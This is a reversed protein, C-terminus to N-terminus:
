DPLPFGGQESSLYAAEVVRMTDLADEVRTPLVDSEGTVYQQLSNMSGIFADPFWNGHTPLTRWANVTEGGGEIYSLTDPKGKPYDLNVGMVARMAGRTGEWQVYSRQMELSFDHSHNTSINVRMWEGYDMTLITKTAALSPTRPSRVTKAYVSVPNGLWSRVLDIYHISHYLIELRPATSLFSWLQWPMHVSVQVEIDHLQGLLGADTIRRATLMNPAWRLQFNVAAILGKRHCLDVIAHAEDLTQGMPKQILVAAGDPLLPLVKLLAPAPVAVDFIKDGPTREVAEKISTTAHPINFDKALASAKASDADVASAVPLNAKRYAPLHADRAIGGSGVVIIPRPHKARRLLSQRVAEDFLSPTASLKHEPLTNMRAFGNEGREM